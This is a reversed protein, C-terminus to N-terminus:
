GHAQEEQTPADAPVVEPEARIIEGTGMNLQDMPGMKYTTAIHSKTFEFVASAQALTAQANRFLTFDSESIREM